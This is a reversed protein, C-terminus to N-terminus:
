KTALLVASTIKCKNSVSSHQQFGTSTDKNETRDNIALDSQFTLYIETTTPKMAMCPGPTNSTSYHVLILQHVLFFTINTYIPSIYRAFFDRAKILKTMFSIALQFDLHYMLVHVLDFQLRCKSICKTSRFPEYKWEFWQNTGFPWLNAFLWWKNTYYNPVLCAVIRQRFWHHGLLKNVCIHAM